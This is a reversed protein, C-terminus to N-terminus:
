SDRVQPAQAGAAAIAETRSQVGLRQYINELHKAVTRETLGLARGVQRNTCGSAVMRLISWQRPTLEMSGRQRRMQDTHMEAIHPRLLTMLLLDRESFDPGEFRALLLRHDLPDMLPLPVVMEPHLGRALLWEGPQVDFDSSRTVRTDGTRQPYSCSLCDWFDRWFLAELQPDEDGEDDVGSSWQVRIDRRPYDMVQLAVRDCGILEAVDDLLSQAIDHQPGAPRDPDIVRRLLRLDRATVTQRELASM